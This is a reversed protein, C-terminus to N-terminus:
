KVACFLSNRLHTIDKDSFYRLGFLIIKGGRGGFCQDYVLNYGFLSTM